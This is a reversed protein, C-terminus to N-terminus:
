MKIPQQAKLELDAVRAVSRLADSNLRAATEVLRCFADDHPGDYEHGPMWLLWLPVKLADAIKSLIDLQPAHRGKLLNNLTKPSIKAKAALFATGTKQLAMHRNVNYAFIKLQEDIVSLFPIVERRSLTGAYLSSM